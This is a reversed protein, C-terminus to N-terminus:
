CNLWVINSYLKDSLSSNPNFQRVQFSLKIEQMYGNKNTADCSNKNSKQKNNTGHPSVIRITYKIHLSKHLSKMFSRKKKCHKLTKLTNM